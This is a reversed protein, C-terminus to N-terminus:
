RQGAALNVLPRSHGQGSANSLVWTNVCKRMATQGPSLLGSDHFGEPLRHFAEEATLGRGITLDAAQNKDAGLPGSWAAPFNSRMGAATM